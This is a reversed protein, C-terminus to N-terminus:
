GRVAWLELKIGPFDRGLHMAIGGSVKLSEWFASSRELEFYVNGAHYPLQRPAVPMPILKIGPLARNILDRIQEVSGIKIHSPLLTRIEETSIDASVELVFSADDLMTKDPIVAVKIGYGKEQLALPTARTQVEMSFSDRLSQMIPRFSEGLSEHMYPGFEVPRKSVSTITSIEGALELAKEFFQLPHLGVLSAYHAIIPEYRNVIQLLLFDTIEAAGGQGSATVRGALAEGRQHLLGNLEKIFGKLVTDSACNLTPSIFQTDLTIQNDSGVESVRAIGLRAYQGKEESELLYRMRLKGVLLHSIDEIGSNSDRVQYEHVYNRALGEETVEMDVEVTGPHRVPLSLYIVQDRVNVDLELPEPPDDSEPISFPTGDPFIGSASIINFKGLALLQRDITLESFGWPYSRTPSVRAEIYNEIYRTQQQFHHPRLFMGESWVVKNWWAM